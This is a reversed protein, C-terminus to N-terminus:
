GDPYFAGGGPNGITSYSDGTFGQNDIPDKDGNSDLNHTTYHHQGPDGTSSEVQELDHRASGCVMGRVEDDKGRADVLLILLDERRKKHL